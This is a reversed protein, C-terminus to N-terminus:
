SRRLIGPTQRAGAALVVLPARVEFRGRRRGEASLFRGRVGVARTGKWLVREVRADTILAAGAALAGPVETVPRAQKGGRPCGRACSNLGVCRRMNRPARAVRLVLS